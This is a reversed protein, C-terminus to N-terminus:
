TNENLEFNIQRCLPNRLQDWVLNDLPNRFSDRKITYELYIPERNGMQNTLHNFLPVNLINM